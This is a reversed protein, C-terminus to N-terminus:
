DKYNFTTLPLTPYTTYFTDTYHIYPTFNTYDTNTLSTSTTMTTLSISTTLWIPTTFNIYDTYDTSLLHLCHWWHLLTTLTTLTPRPRNLVFVFLTWIEIKWSLGHTLSRQFFWLYPSQVNSMKMTCFVKKKWRFCWYTVTCECSPVNTLYAFSSSMWQLCPWSFLHLCVKESSCCYSILM